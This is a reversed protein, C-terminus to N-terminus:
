ILSADPEHGLRGNPNFPTPLFCLPYIDASPTGGETGMSSGQWCFSAGRCMYRWLMAEHMCAYIGNELVFEGSIGIHLFKKKAGM